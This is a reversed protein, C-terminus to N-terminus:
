DILWSSYSSLALAMDLAVHRNLAAVISMRRRHPLPAALILESLRGSIRHYGAVYWKPDLGIERHKIGVLSSRNFFTEDLDGTLLAKWHEAQKRTLHDIISVDLSQGAPLDRIEAYFDRIIAEAHDEILTWSARAEERVQADIGLFSILQDM